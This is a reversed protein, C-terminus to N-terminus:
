TIRAALCGPAGNGSRREGARNGPYEFFTLDSGASGKEDAYFLHYVTPDDQNVSKKVLRLGLM